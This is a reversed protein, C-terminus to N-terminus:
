DIVHLVLRATPATLVAELYTCRNKDYCKVHTLM